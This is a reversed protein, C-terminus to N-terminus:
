LSASSPSGRAETEQLCSSPVLSVDVCWFFMSRVTVYIDTLLPAGFSTAGFLGIGPGLYALGSIAPGWGYIGTFLTPFTTFMLYLYGYVSFSLRTNTVPIFLFSLVYLAVFLSLMFCILSHTLLMFPRSLNVRLSQALSPKVPVDFQVAKGSLEVDGKRRMSLRQKIVPAYTEELFPIGILAGVLPLVTLIVFVWRIGFKQV